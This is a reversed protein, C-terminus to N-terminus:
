DKWWYLFGEPALQMLGWCSLFVVAYFALYLVVRRWRRLLLCVVVAVPWVFMGLWILAIFFYITVYVHAMLSPPFGREGISTPWGGLTRYMHFALSYFLGLVVLGPLASAVIGM